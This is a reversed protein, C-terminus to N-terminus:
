KQGSIFRAMVKAIDDLAERDPLRLKMSFSGDPEEAVLDMLGAKVMEVASAEPTETHPAFSAVFSFMARLLNGGSEEMSKVRTLQEAEAEVRRQESEDIKAVPKDALLLELRQKLEEIGSTLDVRTVDSEIDLAAISLDKKAALTALMKEEITQETVLLYVQVPRKQGMRHARGIRQELVAPNWPLDVNVVTNAAQLNLGTAGANTTVFFRCEPDNKFRNVLEQRKRQPVKGDLRVFGTGSPKLITTEILDLMTTWESFLITKRDAESALGNILEGLQELKTSYAPEEKNVLYTSDAVMRCILLAKQLRLLDMETLFAKHIIQNIIQQQAGHIDAQEQTPTIRVVETTRQPLQQLVMARTRRLLVPRLLARLRDLNKYGATRGHGDGVRFQHEFRFDPGLRRDDIFELVSYLEELRNELPTGSLVLAYRSQLGKIVRSTKAEWNKIRQGEDLIIFDWAVREIAQLDRLVQEYNCITFFQGGAYQGFRDAATGAVIEVKRDCFRHIEIKWQSKVSAPCVVLVRSIGCERALLEAAGVGQITKGLGMDDALVARGNGIIFAIGDLQYPLLEIKLLKKRLSHQQPNKRIETVLSSIKLRHLLMTMHREADPYITVDVGSGTLKAIARALAPIDNIPGGVFKKLVKAVAPDINPPLQMHLETEHGYSLYVAIIRPVFPAVRKWGPFRKKAEDTVRIIHKCTGLTNKRFDPCTCYSEGREVGRLAVRYSKGSERSTIVYDTWLKRGDVPKVQLREKGAREKRRLLERRVLEDESLDLLAPGGESPKALGLQSKEELIVALAAGAHECHHDCESCLIRMKGPFKDDEILSVIADSLTLRFLNAALTTQEQVNIDRRGGELILKEGRVGLLKVAQRYTLRSLREFLTM